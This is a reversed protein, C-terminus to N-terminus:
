RVYYRSLPPSISLNVPEINQAAAIQWAEQADMKRAAELQPAYVRALRHALEAVLADIWLYPVDPTEGNPLNADQMQDVRWYTFVYPGASDPVPWFTVTPTPLRDFWFQTPPGPVNPNALSAFETRSFMTLYRNTQGFVSGANTTCVADLVLVCQSPLTYTATGSVLNITDQVVKFLNVQLNAWKVLALNLERQATVMHEQRIEPARVSCREFAALSISGNSLAFNYTGSSTM